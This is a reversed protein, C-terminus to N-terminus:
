KGGKEDEDKFVDIIKNRETAPWKALLVRCCERAEHLSLDPGKGFARYFGKVEVVREGNEVMRDLAKKLTERDAPKTCGVEKAIRDFTISGGGDAFDLISKKLRDPVSAREVLPRITQCATARFLAYELRGMVKMFLFDKNM